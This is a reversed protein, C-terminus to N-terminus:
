RKPNELEALKARAKAATAEMMSIDTKLREVENQPSGSWIKSRVLNGTQAGVGPRPAGYRWYQRLDIPAAENLATYDKQTPERDLAQELLEVTSFEGDAQDLFASVKAVIEARPSGKESNTEPEPRERDLKPAHWIYVSLERGFSRKTEPTKTVYQWLEGKMHSLVSPDVRTDEALNTTSISQTPKLKDLYAKVVTLVEEHTHAIPPARTVKIKRGGHGKRRAYPRRNGAKM